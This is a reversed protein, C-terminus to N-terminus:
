VGLNCSPNATASATGTAAALTIGSWADRVTEVGTKEGRGAAVVIGSKARECCRVRGGDLKERIYMEGEQVAM